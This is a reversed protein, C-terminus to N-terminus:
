VTEIELRFPDLPPQAITLSAPGAVYREEALPIGDLKLGTLSLGDGDLVLPSPASAKPNPKLKLTTRVRTATQDLSVDLEVTEVLWPPPQYDELRIPPPQDTRM